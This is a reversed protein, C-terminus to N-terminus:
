EDNKKSDYAYFCMCIVPSFIVIFVGLLLSCKAFEDIGFQYCMAFIFVLLAVFKM